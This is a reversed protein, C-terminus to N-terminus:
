TYDVSKESCKTWYDLLKSIGGSFSRKGEAELWKIGM